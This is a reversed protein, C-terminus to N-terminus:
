FLAAPAEPPGELRPEPPAEVAKMGAAFYLTTADTVIQGLLFAVTRAIPAGEDEGLRKRVEELAGDLDPQPGPTRGEELAGALEGFTAEFAQRLRAAEAAPLALADVHGSLAITHRTLRQIYTDFTFSQPVRGRRRRPEALMRQFAADANAAEIEADRRLDGLSRGDAEMGALRDLVAALFRADSRIARALYEPLRAREWLPWLVFGGLIALVAGALTDGVRFELDSWSSSGRLNLLLIILPTLFTIAIGYRRRILLFTLFLLCAIAAELAMTGRLTEILAGALAAGAATGVTRQFARNLTGGYDPQLIILSTMPLWFGHPIQWLQIAATGLAAVVSVRLAHRFIVSRPTFQSRLAAIVDELGAGTLPPIHFLPLRASPRFIYRAAEEANDLHRVAQALAMVQAEAARRAPESANGRQALATAEALLRRVKAFDLAGSGNLLLRAMARCARELEKLTALIAKRAEEGPQSAPDRSEDLTVVAADIRSAARLLVLLRAMVTGPGFVDARMDGLITRAREIAERSARHWKALHREHRRMAVVSDQPAAFPRAEAILATVAEWAAAVEQEARRYPRLQWVAFTVLITWVGGAAIGGAAALEDSLTMAPVQLGILFTISNNLGLPIGGPGIARAFGGAFALVLVVLAALWWVDATHMGGSLMLPGLITYSAMAVLRNRYSGGVDIMSTNLAGIVAFQAFGGLGLLPLVVLPVVTAVTGRLASSLAIRNPATALQKRVRDAWM